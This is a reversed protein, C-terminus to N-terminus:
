SQLSLCSVPTGIELDANNSGGHEGVHCIGIQLDACRMELAMAQLASTM